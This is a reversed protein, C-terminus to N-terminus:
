KKENYWKANALIRNSKRGWLLVEQAFSIKNNKYDKYFVKMIQPRLKLQLSKAELCSDFYEPFNFQFTRQNEGSRNYAFIRMEQYFVAEQLENEEFPINNKQLFDKLLVFFEAYFIDIKESIRLFSTEEIDWYINGFSEMIICRGNGELMSDLHKEYYSLEQLLISCSNPMEKKCIYEILSVFKIGFRNYLYLFIFFALKLSFLSMTVWSFIMMKRWASLPMANTAIVIDQFESVSEAGREAGHTETLLIKKTVIGFKEQYYKDSLKTNAYVECSYIFLQGKFGSEFIYEIGKVWSEYSEGPLGLILETYVPMGESNYKEMLFTYISMDINRRGINRLVEPNLSQFSLTTGKELNNTYLLRAIRYIYEESNKAFCSRFKEPFGYKNKTEVLIHAIDIDRKDIGFNSDANFVYRIRHEGMWKIEAAVYEMSHFRLRKNLMGKGWVCYACGFQCGRNTEIIAQFQICDNEAFLYEFLGDLYPSPFIDLSGTQLPGQNNVHCARTEEDRWSINEIGSFDRSIIFRNLIEAFAVEGDGRVAIDIFPYQQFYHNAEHPVQVGGFVILCDPFTNKIRSAIQLSLQENWMSVSFAAVAPKEYLAIVKNIDERMFLFPMFNYHSNLVESAACFASLLGTAIPLYATKDMLVNFENFYVKLRKNAPTINKVQKLM